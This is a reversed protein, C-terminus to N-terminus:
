AGSESDFGRKPSYYEAVLGEAKGANKYRPLSRLARYESLFGAFSSHPAAAAYSRAAHVLKAQTLAGLNGYLEHFFTNAFAPNEGKPGVGAEVAKRASSALEHMQAISFNQRALNGVFEFFRKKGQIVLSDHISRILEIREDVPLAYQASVAMARKLTIREGPMEVVGGAPTVESVILDAVLNKEARSLSAYALRALAGVRLAKRLHIKAM